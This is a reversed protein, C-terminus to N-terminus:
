EAIVGQSPTHEAPSIPKGTKASEMCALAIRLSSISDKVPLETNEIRGAACDAFYQLEGRFASLIPDPVAESLLEPTQGPRYCVLANHTGANTRSTEGLAHMEFQDVALTYDLSATECVAKVSFVMPDGKLLYSSEVFAVPGSDYSLVAYCHNLNGEASHAAACYVQSPMGFTWYLFDLDHIQLDLAAGGVRAPQKRWSQAGSVHLDLSLMRRLTIAACAGFDRARLVKRLKQYEHWFRLPHGIMLLTGNQACAEAMAEAGGLDLAIPKECLIARKKAAAARETFARHLDNPVCIDVADVSPDALLSEYDPYLTAGFDRSLAEAAAPNAGRCVCFPISGIAQLVRAHLRGIDGAGVLGIRPQDVSMTEIGLIL